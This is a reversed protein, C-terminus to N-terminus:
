SVLYQSYFGLIFLFCCCHSFLTFYSIMHNTKAVFGSVEVTPLYNVRVSTWPVIKPCYFAVVFALCVGDCLDKFDRLPQIDPPQLRQGNDDHGGFEIDQDIRRRLAACVHQVWNLFAAEYNRPDQLIGGTLRSIASAVRDGSAIEKAYLVMLAEIVSMHSKLRLPNTQILVTETLQEDASEHVHVGKRTLTQLISYHNRNQYNPDSYLNSLVQCYLSANGLGVVIQPQLHEKGEHDRYFPEKLNDPVRNNFAKSLLWKVCARQKAQLYFFLYFEILM